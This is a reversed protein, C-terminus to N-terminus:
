CNLKRKGLGKSVHQCAFASAQAHQFASMSIDLLVKYFLHGMM